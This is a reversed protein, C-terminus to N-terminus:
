LSHSWNRIFNRPTVTIASIVFMLKNLFKEGLKTAVNILYNLFNSFKFFLLKLLFLLMFFTAIFIVVKLM